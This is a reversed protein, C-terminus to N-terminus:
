SLKVIFTHYGIVRSHNAVPIHELFLLGVGAPLFGDWCARIVKSYSTASPLSPNATAIAHRSKSSTCCTVQPKIKSTLHQHVDLKSSQGEIDWIECVQKIARDQVAPQNAPQGARKDLPFGALVLQQELATKHPLRRAAALLCTRCWVLRAM